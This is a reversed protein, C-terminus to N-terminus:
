LGRVQCWTMVEYFCNLSISDGSWFKEKKKKKAHFFYKHLVLSVSVRPRIFCFHGYNDAQFRQLLFSNHIKIWAIMAASINGGIRKGCKTTPSGQYNLQHVCFANTFNDKFLSSFPVFSWVSTFKVTAPFLVFHGEFHVLCWDHIFQM